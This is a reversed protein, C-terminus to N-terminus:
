DEKEKYPKSIIKLHERLRKINEKLNKDGIVKIRYNKTTTKNSHNNIKLLYNSTIRTDDEKIKAYVPLFGYNYSDNKINYLENYKKSKRGTSILEINNKPLGIWHYHIRENKTGFDVNVVAIEFNRKIYENIKKNLTEIRLQKGNKKYLTKNDFTATGFLLYSQAGRYAPAYFINQVKKFTRLRKEKRNKKTRLIAKFVDFELIDSFYSYERIVKYFEKQDKIVEKLKDVRSDYLLIKENTM